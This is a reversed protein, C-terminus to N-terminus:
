INDEGTSFLQTGLQHAGTSLLGSAAGGLFIAPTFAGANIWVNIIVGLVAVSLPIYKNPIKDFAHKVVFGVVFCIAGIIPVYYEQLVEAFDM